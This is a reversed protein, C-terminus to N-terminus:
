TVWAECERPQVAFEKRRLICTWTCALGSLAGLVSVTYLVIGFRRKQPLDRRGQESVCCRERLMTGGSATMTTSGADVGLKCGSEGRVEGVPVWILIDIPCANPQTLGLTSGHLAFNSASSTVPGCTSDTQSYRIQISSTERVAISTSPEHSLAVPPDAHVGVIILDVSVHLGELGICFWCGASTCTGRVVRLVLPPLTYGLVEPSPPSPPLFPMNRFDLLFWQFHSHPTSALSHTCGVPAVCPPACQGEEERDLMRGYLSIYYKDRTICAGCREALEERLGVTSVNLLTAYGAEGFQVFMLVSLDHSNVAGDGLLAKEACRNHGFYGGQTEPAAIDLCSLQLEPFASIACWFPSYSNHHLSADHLSQMAIWEACLHGDAGLRLNGEADIRLFDMTCSSLRLPPVSPSPIVYPMGPLPPPPPPFIPVPPSRNQPLVQRKVVTYMNHPSSFIQTRNEPLLVVLEMDRHVPLVNLRTDAPPAYFGPKWIDKAQVSSLVIGHEFTHHTIYSSMRDYPRLDLCSAASQIGSHTRCLIHIFAVFFPRSITLCKQYITRPNSASCEEVGVEVRCERPADVNGFCRTSNITTTKSQNESQSICACVRTPACGMPLRFTPKAWSFGVFNGMADEQRVCGSFRMGVTGAGFEHWFDGNMAYAHAECENWEMERHSAPCHANRTTNSSVYIVTDTLTSSDKTAWM